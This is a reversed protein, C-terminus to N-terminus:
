TGTNLWLLMRYGSGNVLFPAMGMTVLSPIPDSIDALLYSKFAWNHCALLLIQESASANRTLVSLDWGIFKSAQRIRAHNHGGRIGLSTAYYFTRLCPRLSIHGASTASVM